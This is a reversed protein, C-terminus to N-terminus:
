EGISSCIEPRLDEKIDEDSAGGRLDHDTCVHEMDSILVVVFVCEQLVMHALMNHGSPELDLLTFLVNNMIESFLHQVHTVYM